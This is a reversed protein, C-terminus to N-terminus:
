VSFTEAEIARKIGEDSQPFHKRKEEQRRKFKCGFDIGGGDIEGGWRGRRRRRGVVQDM